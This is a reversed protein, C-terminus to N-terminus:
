ATPKYEHFAQPIGEGADVLRVTANSLVLAAMVQASERERADTAAGRGGSGLERPLALRLDSAHM